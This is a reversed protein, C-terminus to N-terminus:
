RITVPVLMGRASHVSGTLFGTTSSDAYLLPGLLIMELIAQRSRAGHSIVKLSTALEPQPFGM